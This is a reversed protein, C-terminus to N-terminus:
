RDPFLGSVWQLYAQNTALKQTVLALRGDPLKVEVANVFFDPKTRGAPPLPQVPSPVTTTSNWLERLEDSLKGDITAQV